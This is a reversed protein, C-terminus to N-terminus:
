EAKELWGQLEKIYEEPLARRSAARIVAHLYDHGPLGRRTSVPIYAEARVPFGREDVVNIMRRAAFQRDVGEFHDLETLEPWGILWVVGFVSSAAAPRLTPVGYHNLEFRHNPLRARGCFTATPCRDAMVAADLLLSFGFVCIGSRVDSM